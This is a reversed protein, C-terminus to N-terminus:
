QNPHKPFFFKRERQREKREGGGGVSFPSPPFLLRHLFFFSSGQREAGSALRTAQTSLSEAQSLKEAGEGAARFGPTPTIAKEKQKAKKKKKLTRAVAVNPRVLSISSLSFVLLVGLSPPHRPGM